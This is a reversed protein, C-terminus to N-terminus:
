PAAACMAVADAGYGEAVYGRDLMGQRISVNTTYRHNSDKRGNWLRWVAMTEPPCAGAPTPLGVEFAANTELLWASSFRDQVEDCEQRSASYFHSDLGASPLGYFRCVPSAGPLSFFRQGTRGWGAHKGGDLDAIEQELGTIFYHDLSPNYFEVIAVSGEPAVPPAIFRGYTSAGPLGDIIRAVALTRTDVVAITRDLPNMVWLETEDFTLAVAGSQGSAIPVSRVDSTRLDVVKVDNRNGSVYAVRGAGDLTVNAYGAGIPTRKVSQGTAVSLVVLAGVNAFDHDVMVLERGDPTIALARPTFGPSLTRIHELDATRFVHIENRSVVYLLDGAPDSVVDAPFMVPVTRVTRAQIDVASLTYYGPHTVYVVRGSPSATMYLAGDTLVIQDVVSRDAPDVVYLVGPGLFGHQFPSLVYALRGGPEFGVGYPASSLSIPAGLAAGTRTDVLTVSHPVNGGSAVLATPGASSLPAITVALLIVAIQIM